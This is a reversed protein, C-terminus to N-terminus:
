LTKIINKKKFKTNGKTRKGNKRGKQKLFISKM